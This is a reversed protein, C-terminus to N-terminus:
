EPDKSRDILVIHPDTDALNRVMSRGRSSGNFVNLHLSGRLEHEIGFSTILAVFDAVQEDTMEGQLLVTPM